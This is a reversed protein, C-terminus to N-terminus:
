VVHQRHHAIWGGITLATIGHCHGGRRVKVRSQCCDIRFQAWSDCLRRGLFEEDLQRAWGPDHGLLDPTPTKAVGNRLAQAEGCTSIFAVDYQGM